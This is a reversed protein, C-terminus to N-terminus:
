GPSGCLLLMQPQHLSHLTLAQNITLLSPPANRVRDSVPHPPLGDPGLPPRLSCLHLPLVLGHSKQHRWAWSFSFTSSLCNSWLMLVRLIDDVTCYPLIWLECYHNAIVYPVYVKGDPDRPWLCGSLLCSDAERRALSSVAIDGYIHLREAVFILM